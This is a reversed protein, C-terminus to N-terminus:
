VAPEDPHVVSLMASAVGELMADLLMERQPQAAHLGMNDDVSLRLPWVRQHGLWSLNIRATTRLLQFRLDLSQLSPLRLEGLTQM